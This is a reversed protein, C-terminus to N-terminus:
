YRREPAPEAGPPYYIKRRVEGNAFEVVITGKDNRWRSVTSTFNEGQVRVTSNRSESAVGLIKGVQEEKMGDTIQDYNAQSVNPGCAALLVALLLAGAARNMTTLLM